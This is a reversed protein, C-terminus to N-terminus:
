RLLVEPLLIGDEDYHLSGSINLPKCKEGMLIRKKCLEEGCEERKGAKVREWKKLKLHTSLVRTPIGILNSSSSQRETLTDPMGVGGPLFYATKQRRIVFQDTAGIAGAIRGAGNAGTDCRVSNIKGRVFDLSTFKKFLSLFPFSVKLYKDVEISPKKEMKQKEHDESKVEEEAEEIELLKMFTYYEPLSPSRAVGLTQDGGSLVDDAGALDSQCNGDGQRQVEPLAKPSSKKSRFLGSFILGVKKPILKKPKIGKKRATTHDGNANTCGNSKQFTEALLKPIRIRINPQPMSISFFHSLQSNPTDNRPVVTRCTQPNKKTMKSRHFATTAM